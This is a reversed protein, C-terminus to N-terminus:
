STQHRVATSYTSDDHRFATVSSSRVFPVYKEDNMMLVAIGILSLRGKMELKTYAGTEM